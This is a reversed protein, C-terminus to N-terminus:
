SFFVAYDILNFNILKVQHFNFEEKMIFYNENEDIEKEQTVNENHSDTELNFVNFTQNNNKLFNVFNSPIFNGYNHDALETNPQNVKM